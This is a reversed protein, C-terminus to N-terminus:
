DAQIVASTVGWVSAADPFVMRYERAGPSWTRGTWNGDLTNVLAAGQWTTSGASRFELVGYRTTPVIRGYHPSYHYTRVTVEHHDGSRTASVYAVSGSRIDIRSMNQTIPNGSGDGGGTPEVSFAGLRFVNDFYYFNHQAPYALHDVVDDTVHSRLQWHAWKTGSQECGAGYTVDVSQHPGWITLRSPVYINCYAEARAKPVPAVFAALLAVIVMTAVVNRKM